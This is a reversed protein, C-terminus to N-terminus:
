QQPGAEVYEIGTEDCWCNVANSAILEDWGARGEYDARLALQSDQAIENLLNQKAIKITSKITM